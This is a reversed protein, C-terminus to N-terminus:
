NVANHFWWTMEFGLRIMVDSVTAMQISVTLRTMRKITFYSYHEKAKCWLGEINYVKISSGASM